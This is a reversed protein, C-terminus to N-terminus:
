FRLNMGVMAKRGGRTGRDLRPEASLASKSRRTASLSIGITAGPAVDIGALFGSRRALSGDQEVYDIVPLRVGRQVHFIPEAAVPRVALVGPAAYSQVALPAAILLASALGLLM